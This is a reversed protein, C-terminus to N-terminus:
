VTRSGSCNTDCVGCVRTGSMSALPVLSCENLKDGEAGLVLNQSYCDKPHSVDFQRHMSSVYELFGM